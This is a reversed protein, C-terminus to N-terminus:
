VSNTFSMDACTYTQYHSQLSRPFPIIEIKSNYKSAIEEAVERFSKTKGTGVNFVGSIKKSLFKDHFECITSVPVFDRLFNESGEFIKIIGTEKAQKTFQYYPSAQTGKHEEGDGYVNFYRFGQWTIPADRSQIYDEIMVKSRAYLNEPQTKQTEKFTMTKGYVSASSSWQFHKGYKICEEFMEITWSVNLDFIKQVDTETTSSIAGIHCVVDFNEIGMDKPRLYEDLIDFEDVDYKEKLHNVLNKGIFGRSGTVLVKM